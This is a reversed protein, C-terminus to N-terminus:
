AKGLFRLYVERLLRADDLANHARYTTKDVGFYDALEQDPNIGRDFVMSAFDIPQWHFPENGVGFLRYVYLADYGGADSVMFPRSDGVFAKIRRVAEDRSVQPGKLQPVVNDRVWDNVPGGYELELYLESGDLKVLAISLLDGLYFELGSFEIDIFVINDSFPKM